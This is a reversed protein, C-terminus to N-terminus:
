IIKEINSNLCDVINNISKSNIKLYKNTKDIEIKTDECNIIEFNNKLPKDNLETTHANLSFWKYQPIIQYQEEILTFLEDITILNKNNKNNEKYHFKIAGRSIIKVKLLEESHDYDPLFSIKYPTQMNKILVEISNKKPIIIETNTYKKHIEHKILKLDYHFLKYKKVSMIEVNYTKNFIKFLKKKLYTWNHLYDYILFIFSIIGVISGFIGLTTIWDM